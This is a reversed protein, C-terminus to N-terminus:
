DVGNKEKEDEWFQKWKEPVQEYASQPTESPLRFEFTQAMATLIHHLMMRSM